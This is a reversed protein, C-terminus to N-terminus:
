MNAPRPRDAMQVAANDEKIKYGYLGFLLVVVFCLLPVIYAYQITSSDSLWGMILPFLAGGAVAMVLLSSGLERDEDLNRIALSFITPFMISEFFPVAMLAWVAVPSKITIAATLLAM